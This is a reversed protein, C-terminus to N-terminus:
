RRHCCGAGASWRRVTRASGMKAYVKLFLDAFYGNEGPRAASPFGQIIQFSLRAYEKFHSLWCVPQNLQDYGKM